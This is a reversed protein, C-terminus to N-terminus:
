LKWVIENRLREVTKVEPGAVIAYVLTEKGVRICKVAARNNIYNGYVFNGNKVIRSFGLVGLIEKSKKACVEPTSLVVKHDSWIQPTYQTEILLPKNVSEVHSHVTNKSNTSCACLFLVSLIVAYKM